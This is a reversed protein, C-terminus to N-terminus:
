RRPECHWAEGAEWEVAVPPRAHAEDQIFARDVHQTHLQEPSALVFKSRQTNVLTGNSKVASRQESSHM